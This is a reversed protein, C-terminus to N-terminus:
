DIVHTNKSRRGGSKPRCVLKHSEGCVPCVFEGILYNTVLGVVSLGWIYM